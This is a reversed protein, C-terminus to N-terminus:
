RSVFLISRWLQRQSKIKVMQLVIIGITESAVCLSICRLSRFIKCLAGEMLGSSTTSFCGM